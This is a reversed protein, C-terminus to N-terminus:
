RCVADDYKTHHVRTDRKWSKSIRFQVMNMRSQRRPKWSVGKM